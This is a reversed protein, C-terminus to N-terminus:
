PKIKPPRLGDAESKTVLNKTQLLTLVDEATVVKPASEPIDAPLPTNGAALWKQYEQFDVNRPDVPIWAGDDVRYITEPHNAVLKFQM